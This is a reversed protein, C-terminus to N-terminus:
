FVADSSSVGVCLPMQFSQRLKAIFGISPAMRCTLMDIHAEQVKDCSAPWGPRGRAGLPFTRHILTIYLAPRLM